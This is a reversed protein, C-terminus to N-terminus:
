PRTAQGPGIRALQEKAWENWDHRTDRMVLDQLMLRLSDDRDGRQYRARADNGLFQANDPRM